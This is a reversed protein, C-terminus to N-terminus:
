ARSNRHGLVGDLGTANVEDDSIQFRFDGQSQYFFLYFWRTYGLSNAEWVVRNLGLDYYPPAQQGHVSM